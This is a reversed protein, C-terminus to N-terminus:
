VGQLAGAYGKIKEQAVKDIMAGPVPEGPFVVGHFNRIEKVREPLLDDGHLSVAVALHILLEQLKGQGGRDISQNDGSLLGYHTVTMDPFWIMSFLQAEAFIVDEHASVSMYRYQFSAAGADNNEIRSGQGEGFAGM